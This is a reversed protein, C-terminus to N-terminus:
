RRKRLATTRSVLFKIDAIPKNLQEQMLIRYVEKNMTLEAAWSADDVFVLVETQASKKSYVVNDTHQLVAEQAVSEWTNLLGATHGNKSQHTNLFREIEQKLNSPGSFKSSTKDSNTMKDGNKLIVGTPAAM